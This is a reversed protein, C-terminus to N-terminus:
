GIFRAFMVSSRSHKECTTSLMNSELEYNGVKLSEIDSVAEWIMSRRVSKDPFIERAAMRELGTHTPDQLFSRVADNCQPQQYKQCSRFAAVIARNAESKVSRAVKKADVKFSARFHSFDHSTYWLETTPINSLQPSRRFVTRTKAFQVKRSPPTASQKDKTYNTKELAPNEQSSSLLSPSFTNNENILVTM